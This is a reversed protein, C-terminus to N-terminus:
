NGREVLPQLVHTYRVGTRESMLDRVNFKLGDERVNFKISFYSAIARLWDRVAVIPGDGFRSTTAATLVPLSCAIFPLLARFSAGALSM